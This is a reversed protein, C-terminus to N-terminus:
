KEALDLDEPEDIDLGWASDTIVTLALGLRTAEAGHRSASGAGYAFHFDTRTPLAMVNTGQGHRDTVITVGHAFPYSGLGDPHALDAHAIIAVDYNAGATEYGEAVADNLDHRAVVLPQASGTTRVFAAVDESDCLAIVDRPRAARLVGLALRQTTAVLEAPDLRARLRSKAGAFAKIPILIVARPATM